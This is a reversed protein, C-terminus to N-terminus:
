PNFFSSGDMNLAILVAISTLVALWILASGASMIILIPEFNMRDYIERLCLLFRYLVLM